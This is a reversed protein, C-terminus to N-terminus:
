RKGEIRDGPARTEGPAEAWAQETSPYESPVSSHQSAYDEDVGNTGPDQGVKMVEETAEETAEESESETAEEDTADFDVDSMAADDDVFVDVSQFSAEPDMNEEDEIGPWPEDEPLPQPQAYQMADQWIEDEDRRRRPHGLDLMAGDDSDNGEGSNGSNSETESGRDEEVDMAGGHPRPDVYPANSYPTAYFPTTQRYVSGYAFMDPMPSPSATSWRPTTRRLRASLPISPSRTDRRRKAMAYPHALSSNARVLQPSTHRDHGQVQANGLGVSM